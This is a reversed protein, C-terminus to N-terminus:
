LESAERLVAQLEDGIGSSEARHYLYDMDLDATRIQVELPNGLSGLASLDARAKAFGHDGTM